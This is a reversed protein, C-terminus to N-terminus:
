NSEDTRYRRGTTVQFLRYRFIRLLYGATEVCQFLITGVLFAIRGHVRNVRIGFIDFIRFKFFIDLLMDIVFPDALHIFQFGAQLTTLFDGLLNVNQTIVTYRHFVVHNEPFGFQDVEYDQLLIGKILNVRHSRHFTLFSNQIHYDVDAM